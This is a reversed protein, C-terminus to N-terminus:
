PLQPLGHLSNHLQIIQESFKLVRNHTRRQLNFTPFSRKPLKHEHRCIKKLNYIICCTQIILGAYRRSRCFIGKRLIRFSGKLDAFGNEIFRRARRHRRYFLSAQPPYTKPIPVLLPNVGCYGNDALLCAGPFFYQRGNAISKSLSSQRYARRDHWSGPAFCSVYRILRTSDMCIQVNLSPKFKRSFYLNRDAKNFITVITGDIAGVTNPLQYKTWMNWSHRRWHRTTGKLTILHRM